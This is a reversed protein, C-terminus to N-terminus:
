NSQMIYSKLNEHHHSHLIADEPINHQTARTLVSAESSSRNKSSDCPLVDWFVGNKIVYTEWFTGGGQVLAAHM